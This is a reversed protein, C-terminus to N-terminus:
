KCNQRWKLRDIQGLSFSRDLNACLSVFEWMMRFLLMKVKTQDSITTETVTVLLNAPSFAKSLSFCVVGLNDVLLRNTRGAVATARAPRPLASRRHVVLQPDPRYCYPPNSRSDWVGSDSSSHEISNNSELFPTNFLFPQRPYRM